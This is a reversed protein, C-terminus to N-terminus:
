DILFMRVPRERRCHGKHAWKAGGPILIGDGAGLTVDEGDRM